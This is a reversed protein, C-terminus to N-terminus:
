DNKDLESEKENIYTNENVKLTTEISGAMLEQILLKSAYPIEINSFDTINGCHLCNYLDYNSNYVDNEVVTSIRNAIYGCNNCIKMSYKDSTDVFKEKLFKEAGNSIIQEQEMTSIRAGGNNRRGAYPQRTLATKIGSPHAYIKECVIHKLRLYYLPGIYILSQIKEGTMGNYMEELGFENYGLKKIAEFLGKNDMDMFPTGDVNYGYLAGYKSYLSELLYSMTKRGYISNPNVIIDPVIGNKTIPMDEARLILGVTAKQASKTSFKDGIHPEYETRTKVKISPYGDETDRIDYEVKDIYAAEHEKYITSQDKYIYNNKDNNNERQNISSVKGIISTFYNIKTEPPVFGKNNLKSIDTNALIKTNAPNPKMFKDDEGTEQNKEIKSTYINYNTIKLLGRKIADQNIVIADEQNFGTYCMIAMIVNEGPSLINYNTYKSARTQVIPEAPHHLVFSKDFRHRYNSAYIGISQKSQNYHLNSRTGDAHNCFQSTSMITGLLLSPHIESYDYNKYLQQNYRNALEFKYEGNGIKENIEQIKKYEEVVDHPTPSIMAYVQEEPDIFEVINKNKYMFEDFTTKDDLELKKDDEIMKKTLNLKHNEVKLVPRILRGSGCWIVIENEIDDYAISITKEIIGTCKCNKLFKYIKEADEVIGYLEGELIIKTFDNLKYYDTGIDSILIIDSNKNLLDEIIPLQDKRNISISGIISLQKVLGVKESEPTENPCLFGFHSFQLKKPGATASSVAKSLPAVIRRLLSLLFPYTLREVANTVGTKKNFTGNTIASQINKSITSDTIINAVYSPNNPHDKTKKNFIININDLMSKFSAKFIEFLLDGVLLIRKQTFSDRMSFPIQKTISRLLKNVMYSTFKIKSELGGHIIHPMYDKLLSKIYIKEQEKRKEPDNSYKIHPQKRLKSMICSIAKDETNIKEGNDDESLRIANIIIDKIETNNNDYCISNIIDRDNNLGLVRFLAVLPFEFFMPIEINIQGKKSLGKNKKYYSIRVSQSNVSVDPSESIIQVYSSDIDDLCRIKNNAQTEQPVIIKELGKIIFYCGPDYECEVKNESDSPNAILNCFKSKVMVPISALCQNDIKENIVRSSIKRNTNLMYKDQIQEIDAYIKLSYTLSRLRCASPYLWNNEKDEFPLVVKYNSFKFRNVYIYTDDFSTNFINKDSYLLTKIYEEIFQEYSAYNHNYLINRNAFYKDAVYFIDDITLEEIKSM